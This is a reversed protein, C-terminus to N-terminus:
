LIGTRVVNRRPKLGSLKKAAAEISAAAALLEQEARARPDSPDFFGAGEKLQGAVQIIEAVTSAVEKSFAPLKKKLDSSPKLVIQHVLELLTKFAVACDRGVSMVRKPSFFAGLFCNCLEDVVSLVFGSTM